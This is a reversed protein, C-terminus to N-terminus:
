PLKVAATARKRSKFKESAIYKGLAMRVNRVLYSIVKKKSNIDPYDTFLVEKESDGKLFGNDGIDELSM